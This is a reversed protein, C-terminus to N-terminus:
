FRWYIIFGIVIIGILLGFVAPLWKMAKKLNTIKYDIIGALIYSQRVNESFMENMTIKNMKEEYEAPRVKLIGGYFSVSSDWEEPNEQVPKAHPGVVRLVYFMM